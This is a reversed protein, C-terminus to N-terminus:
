LVPMKKDLIQRTAVNCEREDSLTLDSDFNAASISMSQRYFRPVSQNLLRLTSFFQNLSLNHVKKISPTVSLNLESHHVAPASLSTLSTESPQLHLSEFRFVAAQPIARVRKKGQYEEWGVGCLSISFLSPIGAVRNPKFCTKSELATCLEHLNHENVKEITIRGNCSEYQLKLTEFLYFVHNSPLWRVKDTEEGLRAMGPTTATNRRKILKHIVRKM